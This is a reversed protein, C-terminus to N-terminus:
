SVCYQDFRGSGGHVIYRTRPKMSFLADTMARTVPNIDPNGTSRFGDTVAIHRDIYQRGYILQQEMTTHQWMKELDATIRQM